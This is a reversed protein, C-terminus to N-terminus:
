NLIPRLGEEEAMEKQTEGTARNVQSVFAQQSVSFAYSIVHAVWKAFAAKSYLKRESSLRQCCEEQPLSTPVAGM